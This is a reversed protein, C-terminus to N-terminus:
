MRLPHAFTGYLESGAFCFPHYRTIRFYVFYISVRAPRRTTQLFTPPTYVRPLASFFGSTAASSHAEIPCDIGKPCCIALGGIEARTPSPARTCDTGHGIQHMTVPTTHPIIPPGHSMEHCMDIPLSVNQVGACIM